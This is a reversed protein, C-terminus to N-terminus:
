TLLEQQNRLINETMEALDHLELELKSAKKQYNLKKSIAARALDERNQQLAKKAVRDWTTVEAIANKYEPQVTDWVSKLDTLAETLLQQSNQRDKGKLAQKIPEYLKSTDLQHIIPLFDKVQQSHSIGTVCWNAFHECNNFLLNYKNEGLRSEAREVTVDPLFRFKEHYEVLYIPNGRSFTAMSTQEIIESPKRYHIVTGDGYDIGHHKYLGDLQFFNRYVYIQDGQAM